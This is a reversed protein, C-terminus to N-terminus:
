DCVGGSLSQLHCIPVAAGLFALHLKLQLAAVGQHKTLLFSQPLSGLQLLQHVAAPDGKMWVLPLQFM